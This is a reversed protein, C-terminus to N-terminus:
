GRAASPSFGAGCRAAIAASVYGAFDRAFRDVSSWDTFEYDRRMSLRAGHQRSIAWMMLRLLFGYKTFATGGRFTAYIEPVWGTRRSFDHAYTESAGGSVSVFATEMGSMVALRQKVWAELAREHRGFYVGGAVILADYQELHVDDAESLPVARGDGAIEAIRRAIKETQGYRSAYVILM